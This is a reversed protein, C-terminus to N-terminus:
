DHKSGKALKSQKIKEADRRACEETQFNYHTFGKPCTWQWGPRGDSKIVTYAVDDIHDTM